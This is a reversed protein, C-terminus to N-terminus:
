EEDLTIARKVSDLLEQERFPKEIFDVAGDRIARVAMRVDGHGTLFVIPMDVGRRQLEEQLVLGDMGPMRVDLVLCGARSPLCNELFASASEYCEANWGASRVLTELSDRVAEDDDVVFVTAEDVSM